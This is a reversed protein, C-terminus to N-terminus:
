SGRRYAEGSINALHIIWQEDRGLAADESGLEKSYRWGAEGLERALDRDTGGRIAEALSLDGRDVPVCVWAGSAALEGAPFGASGTAALIPKGSYYSSTLKSPLSM